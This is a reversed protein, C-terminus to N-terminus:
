GNDPVEGFHTRCDPCLSLGKYTTLNDTCGCIHCSTGYKRITLTDETTTIELATGSHLGLEQRLPQPITLAGSRTLKRYQNTGM